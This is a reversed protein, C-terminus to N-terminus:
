QTTIKAKNEHTPKPNNQLPNEPVFINKLMFSINIEDKNRVSLFHICGGGVRLRNQAVDSKVSKVFVCVCVCVCVCM